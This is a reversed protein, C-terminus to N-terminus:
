VSFGPKYKGSDLLSLVAPELGAQADECSETRFYLILFLSHHPETMSCTHVCARSETGTGYFPPLNWYLDSHTITVCSLNM